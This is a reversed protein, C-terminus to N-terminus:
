KIVEYQLQVLGNSYPKSSVLRCWKDNNIKSFLPIGSGLVVPILSIILQDVLGANLFQSVTIGGDVYIHKIGDAHLKEVLHEINGTFLEAQECVSKLTSSLVVVRKGQYPWIDFGSVIEYTNRGMVLVDVGSFFKSYGCDKDEDTATPPNFKVLWDIDGNKKAIYGDISTAIFVSVKPRKHPIMACRKLIIDM